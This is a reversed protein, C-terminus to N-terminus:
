NKGSLYKDLMNRKILCNDIRESVPINYRRFNKLVNETLKKKLM